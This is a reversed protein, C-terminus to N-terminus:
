FRRRMSPSGRKGAQRGKLSEGDRANSWSTPSKCSSDRLGRSEFVAIGHGLQNCAEDIAAGLTDYHLPSVSGSVFVLFGVIEGVLAV